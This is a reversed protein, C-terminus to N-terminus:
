EIIIDNKLYKEIIIKISVNTKLEIVDYLSKFCLDVIFLICLVFSFIGSKYPNLKIYRKIIRYRLDYFLISSM